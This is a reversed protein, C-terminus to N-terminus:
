RRSVFRMGLIGPPDRERAERCAPADGLEVTGTRCRRRSPPVSAQDSAGGGEIRVRRVEGKLAANQWRKKSDALGPGDCDATGPWDCAAARRQLGGNRRRRVPPSKVCWKPIRQEQHTAGNLGDCDISPQGRQLGGGGNEVATLVNAPGATQPSKYPRGDRPLIHQDRSPSGGTLARTM